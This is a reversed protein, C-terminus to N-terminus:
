SAEKTSRLAGCEPCISSSCRLDYGCRVCLGRRNRVQKRAIRRLWLAPLFAALIAPFWYPAAIFEGNMEPQITLDLDPKNLIGFGSRGLLKKTRPTYYGLVPYHDRSKESGLLLTVSLPRQGDFRDFGMVFGGSDSIFYARKLSDSQPAVVIDLHDARFHSRVWMALVAALLATSVGIFFRRARGTAFAVIIAGGFTAGITSTAIIRVTYKAPYLTSPVGFAGYGVDQPDQLLLFVTSLGALPIIWLILNIKWAPKPTAPM